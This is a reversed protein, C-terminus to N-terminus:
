CAGLSSLRGKVDMSSHLVGIIDIGRSAIIYFVVHKGSPFSRYWNAIEPRERGLLPNDALVSFADALQMLYTEAQQQGWSEVTYRWIERLDSEAAPTLRYKPPM